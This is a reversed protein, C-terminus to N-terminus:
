DWQPISSWRLFDEYEAAAAEAGGGEGGNLGEAGVARVPSGAGLGAILGESKRIFLAPSSGTLPM